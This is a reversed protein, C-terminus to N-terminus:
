AQEEPFGELSDIAREVTELDMFFTKTTVQMLTCNACRLHCANTVEVHITHMEALDRMFM